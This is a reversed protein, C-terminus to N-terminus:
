GLGLRTLGKQVVLELPLYNTDVYWLGYPVAVLVALTATALSFRRFNRRARSEIYPITSIPTVNFRGIMESPRRINRNALELLMFYAGALAIGVAAGMIAIKPRNPGTPVRPVSANEITTIRQGQATTEIRESMRAQNLNNVAADYRSQISEFERQLSAIEIGNASSRSINRQLEEFEAETNAIDANIFDLRSDIESLTAELLAKEPTIQEEPSAGTAAATQAAVIAELRELRAQLRIVNPHNTSYTSLAQDLEAQTVVLQQQEVSQTVQAQRQNIRGTTEYIEVIDRRQNEGATKDRELRSLREQLLTQRGLRYSQEEPLAEANESKFVAIESSKSDLEQNLRQVEQDFFQLTSEASSKRTAANEELVLTVYENVVSAAVAGTRAEFSITMLTAQNRGASRRVRTAARMLQEVTDPEMTRINEFVEFHNAIDILNARTLLKQQIVDLQESIDTRITSAVMSDPIQPAEVLLRASTSYTEPLKVATIVGMSTCALIFLMMVPMRRILLKLYFKLDFNM